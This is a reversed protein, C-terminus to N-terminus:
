SCFNLTALLTDIFGCTSIDEDEDDNKSNDLIIKQAAQESLLKGTSLLQEAQITAIEPDFNDPLQNEGDYLFGSFEIKQENKKNWEDIATEVKKLNLPKDDFFVIHSPLINAKTLLERLVIGKSKIEIGNDMAAFAVGKHFLVYGNSKLSEKIPFSSSFDIGFSKLNQYLFEELKKLPGNNGARRSTLGIVLVGKKQLENILPVIYNPEILMKPALFLKASLKKSDNRLAISLKLDQVVKNERYRDQLLPYQETLITGDIDFAVLDNKGLTNLIKKVNKNNFSFILRKSGTLISTTYCFVLLLIWSHIKVM